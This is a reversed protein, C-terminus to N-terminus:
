VTLCLEPLDHCWSAPALVLRFFVQGLLFAPRGAEKRQSHDEADWLCRRGKHSFFCTVEYTDQTTAPATSFCAFHGLSYRVFCGREPFNRVLQSELELLLPNRRNAPEAELDAEGRELDHNGKDPVDCNVTALSKECYLAINAFHGDNEGELQNKEPPDNWTMEKIMRSM